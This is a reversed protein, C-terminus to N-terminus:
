LYSEVFCSGIYASSCPSLVASMGEQWYKGDFELILFLRGSLISRDLFQTM